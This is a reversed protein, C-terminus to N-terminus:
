YQRSMRFEMSEEMVKYGCSKWANIEEELFNSDFGTTLKFNRPANLQIVVPQVILQLPEDPLYALPIRAMRGTEVIRKGDEDVFTSTTYVSVTDNVVEVPHFTLYTKFLALQPGNFRELVGLSKHIEAYFRGKDGFEIQGFLPVCLCVLM